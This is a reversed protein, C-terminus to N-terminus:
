LYSDDLWKFCVSNGLNYQRSCNQLPMVPTWVGLYKGQMLITGNGYRSTARGTNSRYLCRTRQSVYKRRHQSPRWCRRDLLRKEGMTPSCPLLLSIYYRTIFVPIRSLNRHPMAFSQQSFRRESSCYLFRSRRSSLWIGQNNVFIIWLVQVHRAIAQIEWVLGRVSSSKELSDSPTPRHVSSQRSEWHYFM